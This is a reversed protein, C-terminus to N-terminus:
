DVKHAPLRFKKALRCTLRRSSTDKRVGMRFAGGRVYNKCPVPFVRQSLMPFARHMNLKWASFHFGKLLCSQASRVSSYCDTLFVTTAAANVIRAIVNAYVM